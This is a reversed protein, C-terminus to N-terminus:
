YARPQARGYYCKTREAPTSGVVKQDTTLHEIWQAVLADVLAYLNRAACSVCSHWNLLLRWSTSGEVTNDALKTKCGSYTNDM